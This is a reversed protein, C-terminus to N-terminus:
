FFSGVHNTIVVFVEVATAHREAKDALLNRHSHAQQSHHFFKVQHCIRSMLILRQRMLASNLPQLETSTLLKIRRYHLGETFSTSRRPGTKNAVFFCLFCYHNLSSAVTATRRHSHKLKM